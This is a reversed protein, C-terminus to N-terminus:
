FQELMDPNQLLFMMHWQNVGLHKEKSEEVDLM